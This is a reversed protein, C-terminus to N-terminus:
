VFYTGNMQLTTTDTFNTATVTAYAGSSLQWLNVITTGNGVLPVIDSVMSSMSSFWAVGNPNHTAGAAYPLGDVLASGTSSGKASLVIRISWDVRNGIRTFKGAQTTYTLGTSGGGFTLTPTFTGEEYWDLVNGAVATNGLTLGRIATDGNADRLTLTDATAATAGTTRANALTGSSINAANLATLSSGVGSFGAAVVNGSADVTLRDTLTAAAGSVGAAANAFRLSGDNKLQLLSAEDSSLYSWVAGASERLNFSTFAAGTSDMGSSAFTYQISKASAVWTGPTTGLGLNGATDFVARLAGATNLQLNDDANLITPAGPTISLSHTATADYFAAVAGQVEFKNSPSRGIGVNGSADIRLRNVGATAIDFVDGASSYIGTSAGTTFNISPVSVSGPSLTLSSIGSITTSANLVNTGDCFLVANQGTPVVVTTGVGATKFTVNFAGTTQNSVYYVQVTSPLVVNVNGVLVGTYKQVVNQAEAITLTVTGTSIAKSLQTFNFASTRGRGVSVWKTGGDAAIYCSEGIGLVLTAAGDLTDAGDCTITISGSGQNAVAFFYDSGATVSLPLTLTGVGGTWIFLKARDAVTSTFSVSVSTVTLKGYLTSGSAGIGPGILSAATVASALSGFQLTAWVGAATTNSTVYIYQSVGPPVTCIVGGANDKVTYTNAGPNTFIVDYGPSVGRADPMTISLGGSSATVAMIRAVYNDDVATDPWSLSVDAALAVARYAVQAPQVTSGGFPDTYSM